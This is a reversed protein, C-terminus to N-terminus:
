VHVRPEDYTLTRKLGAVSISRVYMGGTVSPALTLADAVLGNDEHLASPFIFANVDGRVSTVELLPVASTWRLSYKYTGAPLPVDGLKAPTALTFEGVAAAKAAQAETPKPLATLAVIAMASVLVRAAIWRAARVGTKAFTAKMTKRRLFVGHGGRM